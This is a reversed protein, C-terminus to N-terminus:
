DDEVPLRNIILKSVRQEDMETVTIRLNEYEFSEGVEPIHEFQELVWGGLTNYDSDFDRPVFEIESFFDGTNMDASVEYCHEDLHVMETEIEDSEDWIDGVLQELVDELTVLGMTGGYDDTVIAIHNKSKQFEALLRPLKMTKHIYLCSKMHDALEAGSGRIIAELVDITQVIGKINDLSKEYVPLRSYREDLMISMIRDYDDNIELAVIDVRPTLIEQVTIDDFELASQVLESEQEELVGEEEIAEIFYKLEQETISPQRGEERGTRSVRSQLQIFFWTFPTLIIVFFGLLGAAVLSIQEANEKAYSKPLIEGFTLVLLTTIGTAIGVGSSGFMETAIVTAISSSAINVVNNGVLITSLTKDYHEIHKLAKKAKKSGDEALSKLRLTSASSLATESASFFASLALLVLLFIYATSDM